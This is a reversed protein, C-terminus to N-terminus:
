VESIVDFGKFSGTIALGIIKGTCIGKSRIQLATENLTSGSGVADDIILVNKHINNDSVIITKKANEIRDELKNLTKQPVVIENKIKTLSMKVLNLRLEQELVKMLQIERKVTPPIFGVTTIDFKKVLNLIKPKVETALEKMLIKNQSQKAYLLLQGLKTKGFRDISYFDLYFLYDLGIERFTNKLKQSGDILEDKRLKYYKNLTKVYENATKEIPLNVKKCWIQFGKFGEFREGSPSIYLYNRNIFNLKKSDIEVLNKDRDRNEPLSYYVKPPKGFKVIEGKKLLNALQKRIARDTLNLVNSLEHGSARNKSKLYKKINLSTMQM